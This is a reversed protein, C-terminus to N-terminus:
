AVAQYGPFQKLHQKLNQPEVKVPAVRYDPYQLWQWCTGDEEVLYKRQSSTGSADQKFFFATRKAVAEDRIERAWAMEMPRFGKGSEGGVIIWDIGVLDLPLLSTLLPEASVFKVKAASNRLTDILPLSKRHGCTVGLWINDTWPGPWNVTREPRKTLIQFVRHQHEPATMVAFVQEIFRDSVQEHFLDSMSNVFIKIPYRPHEEGAEKGKNFRAPYCLLKPHEVINISANAATWPLSTFGRKLSVFEAYCHVCEESIKSCGSVPNWTFDTWAIGTKGM